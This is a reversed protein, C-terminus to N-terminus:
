VGANEVPTGANELLSAADGLIERLAPNAAVISQHQQGWVLFRALQYFLLANSCGLSADRNHKVRARAAAHGVTYPM